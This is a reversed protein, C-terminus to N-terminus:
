RTPTPRSGVVHADAFTVLDCPRFRLARGVRVYAVSGASALRRLSRPSTALRRAAEALDVLVVDDTAAQVLPAATPEVLRARLPRRATPAAAPTM